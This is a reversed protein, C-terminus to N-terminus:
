PPEDIRPVYDKYDYHRMWTHSEYSAGLNLMENFKYLLGLTFGAGAAFDWNGGGATESNFPRNFYSHWIRGSDRYRLIVPLASLYNIM